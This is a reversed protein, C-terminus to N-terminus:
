GLAGKRAERPLVGFQKSFAASFHSINSYGLTVATETVGHHRLLVRARDMRERQFLAYISHGFLAKFGRKLKLQNLGTEKALEAITPPNSLDQLLRERAAILQRRDRPSVTDTGDESRFANLHWALFELAAAHLLLAQADEQILRVLRHAADSARYSGKNRLICFGKGIDRSIRPYDKGAVASLTDLSAVLEVNQHDAPLRLRFREGPAFSTLLHGTGLHLGRSEGFTVEVPGRVLCSFHVCDRDIHATTQVDRSGRFSFLSVTLGPQLEVTKMEAGPLSDSLCFQENFFESSRLECM